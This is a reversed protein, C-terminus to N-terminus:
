RNMTNKCRWKLGLGPEQKTGPFEAEDLELFFFLGGHLIDANRVFFASTFVSKHFLRLGPVRKLSM